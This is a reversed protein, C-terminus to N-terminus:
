QGKRRQWFQEITARSLILLYPPQRRLAEELDDAVVHWMESISGTAEPFGTIVVRSTRDDPLKEAAIIEKLKAALTSLPQEKPQAEQALAAATVLLLLVGCISSAARRM